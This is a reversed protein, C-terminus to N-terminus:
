RRECTLVNIRIIPNPKYKIVEIKLGNICNITPSDGKNTIVASDISIM